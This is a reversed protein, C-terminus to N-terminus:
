GDYGAESTPLVKRARKKRPLKCRPCQHRRAWIEEVPLVARERSM